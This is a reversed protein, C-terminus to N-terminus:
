MIKRPDQYVVTLFQRVADSGRPNRRIEEYKKDLVEEPATTGTPGGTDGVVPKTAQPQATQTQVRQELSALQKKVALMEVYHLMDQPTAFEEPIEAPQLGYQLALELRYAKQAKESAFKALKQYAEETVRRPAEPLTPPEPPEPPKTDGKETGKEGLGLKTLLEKVLDEAAPQQGQAPQEQAPLQQQTQQQPQQEEAVKEKEKEKEEPM